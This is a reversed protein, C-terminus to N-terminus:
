KKTKTAMQKPSEKLKEKVLTHLVESQKTSKSEKHSQEGDTNKNTILPNESSLSETKQNVEM